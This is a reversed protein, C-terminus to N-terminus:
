NRLESAIDACELVAVFESLIMATAGWIDLQGIQFVPVEMGEGRVNVTKLLRNKPDCIHSLGIEHIEEVEDPNPIYKPKYHLYGVVPHVSFNSVPIYLNTLHGLVRIDNPLVGIEENCERLATETPSKDYTEEKGGPFALQGGHVSGNRIRRIFAVDFDNNGPLLLIIVSSRKAGHPNPTYDATLRAKPAMQKQAQLGPLDARLCHSLRDLVSDITSNAFM